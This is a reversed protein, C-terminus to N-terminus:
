SCRPAHRDRAERESRSAQARTSSPQDRGGSSRACISSPASFAVGGGGGGGGAGAAGAGGGMREAAEEDMGTGGGGGIRVADLWVRARSSASSASIRRACSSASLRACRSRSFRASFSRRASRSLRSRRLDCGLALGIGTGAVLSSTGLSSSSMAGGGGSAARGPLPVLPSLFRSILFGLKARVRTHFSRVPWNLTSASNRPSLPCFIRRCLTLPTMMSTGSSFILWSSAAKMLCSWSPPPPPPLEDREDDLSRARRSRRASRSARWAEREDSATLPTTVTVLGDDADAPPAAGGRLRDSKSQNSKKRWAPHSMSLQVRYARLASLSPNSSCSMGSRSSEFRRPNPRLSPSTMRTLRWMLSLYPPPPPLPGDSGSLSPGVDEDVGADALSARWAWISASWSSACFSARPSGRGGGGGCSKEEPGSPVSLGRRPLRLVAALAVLTLEFASVAAAESSSFLRVVDGPPAPAADGDGAFSALALSVRLLDLEVTGTCPPNSSSAHSM